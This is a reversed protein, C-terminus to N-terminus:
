MGKLTSNISALASAIARLSGVSQKELMLKLQAMEAIIAKKAEVDDMEAFKSSAEKTVEITQSIEKKATDSKGGSPSKKAKKAEAEEQLATITEQIGAGRAVKTAVRMLDDSHLDKLAKVEEEVYNMDSMAIKRLNSAFGKWKKLMSVSEAAKGLTDSVKEAEQLFHAKALTASAFLGYFSAKRTKTATVIAEAFQSPHTLKMGNVTTM